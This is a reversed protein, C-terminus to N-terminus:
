QGGGVKGAAWESVTDGKFVFTSLGNMVALMLSFGIGIGLSRMSNQYDM